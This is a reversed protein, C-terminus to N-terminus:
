PVREVAELDPPPLLMRREASNSSRPNKSSQKTRTLGGIGPHFVRNDEEM